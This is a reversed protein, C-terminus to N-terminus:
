GDALYQLQLQIRYKRSVPTGNVHFPSYILCITLSVTPFRDCDPKGVGSTTPIASVHLNTINEKFNGHKGGNILGKM